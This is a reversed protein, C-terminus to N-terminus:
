SPQLRSTQPTMTLSLSLAHSSPSGRLAEENRGLKELATARRNLAKVYNKELALAADCDQIVLEYNPPTMNVYGTM